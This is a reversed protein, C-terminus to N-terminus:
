RVGEKGFMRRETRARSLTMGQNKSSAVVNSRFEELYRAVTMGGAPWSKPRYRQGCLFLLDRAENVTPERARDGMLVMMADNDRCIAWLLRQFSAKNLWTMRLGAHESRYIQAARKMIRAAPGISPWSDSQELMRIADREIRAVEDMDDGSIRAVTEAIEPADSRWPRGWAKRYDSECRQRVADELESLEHEAFLRAKAEAM